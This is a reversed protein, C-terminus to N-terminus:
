RLGDVVVDVLWPRVTTTGKKSDDSKKGKM